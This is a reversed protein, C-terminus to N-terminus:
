EHTCHLLLLLKIFFNFPFNKELSVYFKIFCTNHKGDQKEMLFWLFLGRSQTMRLSENVSLPLASTM